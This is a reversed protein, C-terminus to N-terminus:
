RCRGRACSRRPRAKLFRHRDVPGPLLGAAGLAACGPIRTRHISPTDHYQTSLPSYGTIDGGKTHMFLRGALAYKLLCPPVDAGHIPTYLAFVCFAFHLVCFAFVCVTNGRWAALPLFHANKDPCIRALRRAAWPLACFPCITSGPPRARFFNEGNACGAFFALNQVNHQNAPLASEHVNQAAFQGGHRGDDMVTVKSPPFEHQRSLPGMAPRPFPM